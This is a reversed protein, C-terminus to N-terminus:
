DPKGILIFPAWYYPHPYDARTKIQAQRLAARKPCGEKLASYFHEMFDSTSRDDVAWLSLVLSPAGAHLFGRMIGLLEDGPSIHNVGTHCASLTVLEANLDLNFLDYFNLWRDGLKLSSFLPNDNRFVGHSALHLFRCRRAAQKFKDVTAEKGLLVDASPLLSKLVEIEDQLHPTAEDSVGLLLAGDSEPSSRERCL